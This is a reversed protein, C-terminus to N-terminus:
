WVERKATVDFIRISYDSFEGIIEKFGDNNMDFAIIREGFSKGWELDINHFKSDIVIGSNLVIEYQPDRDVNDVLLNEADFERDSMWQRNKSLGDFIYIRSDALVVIEFQIDKDINAIDIAKIEKFNSEINEWISNYSEMEYVIIKGGATAVVIEIKGDGELDIVFFRRIKSGLSTLEWERRWGGDDTARKLYIKGYVDAHMVGWAEGNDLPVIQVNPFREFVKKMEFPDIKESKSVVSLVSLFLICIIVSVGLKKM